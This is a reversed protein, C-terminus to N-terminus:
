IEFDDSKFMYYSDTNFFQILKSTLSVIETRDCYKLAFVSDWESQICHFAIFWETGLRIKM